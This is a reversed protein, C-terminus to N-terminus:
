VPGSQSETLCRMEPQRVDIQRFSNQGYAGRLEVLAAQRRDPRLKCLHQLGIHGRAQTAVKLSPLLGVEKRVPVSRPEGAASNLLRKVGQPPDSPDVASCASSLDRAHMIESMIGAVPNNRCSASRLPMQQLIVSRPYM